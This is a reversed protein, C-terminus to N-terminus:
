NLIGEWMGPGGYGGVAPHLASIRPARAAETSCCVRKSSGRLVPVQARGRVMTEPWSFSSGQSALMERVDDHVSNARGRKSGVKLPMAPRDIGSRQLEQLARAADEMERERRGLPTELSMESLEKGTPLAYSEPSTTM